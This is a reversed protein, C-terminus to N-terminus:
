VSRNFMVWGSITAALLNISIESAIALWALRPGDTVANRFRWGTAQKPNTGIQVPTPSAQSM